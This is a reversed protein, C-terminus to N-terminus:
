FGPFNFDTWRSAPAQHHRVSQACGSCNVRCPESAPVPSAPRIPDVSVTLNLCVTVFFQLLFMGIMSFSRATRTDDVVEVFMLIYQLKFIVARHNSHHRVMPTSMNSAQPLLLPGRVASATGFGFVLDLESTSRISEVRVPISTCNLSILARM